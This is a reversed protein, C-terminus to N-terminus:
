SRVPDVEFEWGDYEGDFQVALNELENRTRSLSEETTWPSSLLVLWDAGQAAQRVEVRFGSAPLRQQAQRANAETRFYLFHRVQQVGVEPAIQQLHPDALPLGLDMEPVWGETLREVLMGLNWSSAISLRAQQATLTEVRREKEGEFITWSSVGGGKALPRVFGRRRMPPFQVASDPVRENSVVQLLGQNVLTEIPCFVFYLEKARALEVFDASKSQHFGPLVRILTGLPEQYHTYQVYALGRPTPVELVDGIKLVQKM